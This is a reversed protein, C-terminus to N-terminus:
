KPNRIAFAPEAEPERQPVTAVMDQLFAQKPQCPRFSIVPLVDLLTIKIEIRRRSMRVQFRKVFVRLRCKRIILQDVLITTPTQIERFKLEDVCANKFIATIKVHEGLVRFM